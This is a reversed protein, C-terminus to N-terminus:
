PSTYLLCGLLRAFEVLERKLWYWRLFETGGLTATLPPREDPSISMRLVMDVGASVRCRGRVKRHRAATTRSPPSSGGRGFVSSGLDLADALEAVRARGWSVAAARRFRARDSTFTTCPRGGASPSCMVM